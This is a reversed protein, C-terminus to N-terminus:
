QAVTLEQYEDVLVFEYASQYKNRLERNDLLVQVSLAFVDNKDIRNTKQLQDEHAQYVKAVLLESEGEAEAKASKASVLHAKYMSIMAAVYFEDLDGAMELKVSD